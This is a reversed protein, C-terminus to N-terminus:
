IVGNIELNYDSFVPNSKTMYLDKYWGFVSEGDELVYLCLTSSLEQLLNFVQPALDNHIKLKVVYKKTKNGEQLFDYGSSNTVKKSFDRSRKEYGFLADGIYHSQGVICTGVKNADGKIKIAIENINIFPSSDIVSNVPNFSSYFYDHFSDVVRYHLDFTNTTTTETNHWSVEVKTGDVGLVAVTDYTTDVGDVDSFIFQIDQNFSTWSTSIFKDFVALQNFYPQAEWMLPNKLPNVGKNDGLAKFLVTRNAEVKLNSGTSPNYKSYHLDLVVLDGVYYDESENWAPFSPLLLMYVADGVDDITAINQPSTDAGRDRYFNIEYTDDDNLDERKFYLGGQPTIHYNEKYVKIDYLPDIKEGYYKKDVIFLGETPNEFTAAHMGMAVQYNEDDLIRVDGVNQITDKPVLLNDYFYINYPFLFMGDLSTRKGTSDRVIVNDQKKPVVVKV